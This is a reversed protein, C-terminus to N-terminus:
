STATSLNSNDNNMADNDDTNSGNSQHNSNLFSLYGSWGTLVINQVIIRHQLPIFYFNFCHVLPWIKYHQELTPILMDSAKVMADNTCERIMQEYNNSSTAATPIIADDSDCATTTTASTTTQKRIIGNNNNFKNDHCNNKFNCNDTNNMSTSINQISNTITYYTFLYLPASFCQDIGVKMITNFLKYKQNPIRRNITRELYGWWYHMWTTSIIGFTAASISRTVDYSQQQTSMMGESNNNSIPLIRQTICDSTFFILATGMVKTRLPRHLLSRCYTDWLIRPTIKHVATSYKQVTNNSKNSNPSSISNNSTSSATTITTTTPPTATTTSAVVTSNTGNGTTIMRKMPPAVAVTNKSNKILRGSSNLQTSNGNNCCGFIMDFGKM